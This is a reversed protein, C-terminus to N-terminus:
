YAEELDEEETDEIGLMEEEGEDEPLTDGEGGEGLLTFSDCHGQPEADFNHKKCQMADEDFYECTECREAASTYNVSEHSTKTSGGQRVPGAQASKAPPPMAEEPSPPPAGLEDM